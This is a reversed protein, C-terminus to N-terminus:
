HNHNMMLQLTTTSREQIIQSLLCTPLKIRLEFNVDNEQTRGLLFTFLLTVLGANNPIKLQM